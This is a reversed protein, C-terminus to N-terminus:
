MQLHCNLKVYNQRRFVVGRDEAATSREEVIGCEPRVLLIVTPTEVAMDAYQIQM